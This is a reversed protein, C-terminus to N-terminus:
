VLAGTTDFDQLFVSPEGTASTFKPPLNPGFLHLEDGVLPGVIQQIDSRFQEALMLAVKHEQCWQVLARVEALPASGLHDVAVLEVELPHAPLAWNTDDNLGDYVRCRWGSHAGAQRVLM